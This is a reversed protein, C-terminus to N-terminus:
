KLMVRTVLASLKGMDIGIVLVHRKTLNTNNYIVRM